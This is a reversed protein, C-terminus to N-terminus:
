LRAANPLRSGSDSRIFTLRFPENMTVFSISSKASRIYESFLDYAVPKGAGDVSSGSIPESWSGIPWGFLGNGPLVAVTRV